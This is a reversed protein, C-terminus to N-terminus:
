LFEFAILMLYVISTIGFGQVGTLLTKDNILTRLDTCSSSVGGLLLHM